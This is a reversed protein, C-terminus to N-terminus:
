RKSANPFLFIPNISPTFSNNSNIFFSKGNIMLIKQKKKKKSNGKNKLFINLNLNTSKIDEKNIVDINYKTVM